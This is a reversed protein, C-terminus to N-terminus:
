RVVEITIFGLIMVLILLLMLAVGDWLRATRWRTVNKM